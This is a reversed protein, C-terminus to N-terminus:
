MSARVCLRASIRRVRAEDAPPAFGVAGGLLELCHGAMEEMPISVCTLPPCAHEAYEVAGNGVSIVGMDDPVRIGLEWCRHLVGM